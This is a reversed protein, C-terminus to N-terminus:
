KESRNHLTRQLEPLLNIPVESMKKELYTSAPKVDAGSNLLVHIIEMHGM